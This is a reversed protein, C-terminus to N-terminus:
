GGGFVDRLRRQRGAETAAVQQGDGLEVRALGDKVEAGAGAQIHQQGARRTAGPPMPWPRSALGSM